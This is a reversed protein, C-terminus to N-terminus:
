ALLMRCRRPFDSHGPKWFPKKDFQTPKTYDECYIRGCMYALLVKNEHWKYHNGDITMYGNEIAKAFVKRALETDLRTHLKIRDESPLTDYVVTQSEQVEVVSDAPADMDPETKSIGLSKLKEKYKQSFYFVVVCISIGMITIFFQNFDVKGDATIPNIVGLGVLLITVTFM